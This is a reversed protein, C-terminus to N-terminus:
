IVEDVLPDASSSCVLLTICSEASQVFEKVLIKRQHRTTFLTVHTIALLM